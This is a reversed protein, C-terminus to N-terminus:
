PLRPIFKWRTYQEAAPLDTHALGLAGRRWPTRESLSYVGMVGGGPAEVLGWHSSKSVPDRYLTRIHHRDSGLRRDSVLADLAPPFQKAPGPTSYYYSAIARAYADGVRLLEDENERLLQSGLRDTALSAVAGLTAVLFLLLYMAYGREAGRAKLRTGSCVGM